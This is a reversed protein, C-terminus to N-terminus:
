PAPEVIAASIPEKDVIGLKECEALLEDVEAIEADRQADYEDKQRQITRRRVVLSEVDYDNATTTTIRITQENIKETQM